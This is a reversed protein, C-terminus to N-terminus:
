SGFKLRKARPFHPAVDTWSRKSRDHLYLCSEGLRCGKPRNFFMCPKQIKNVKVVKMNDDVRGKYNNNENTAPSVVGHERILSKYYDVNKVPEASSVQDDRNTNGNRNQPATETQASEPVRNMDWTSSMNLPQKNQESVLANDVPSPPKLPAAATYSDELRPLPKIGSSLPYSHVVLTPKISLATSIPLTPKPLPPDTACSQVSVPVNHLPPPNSDMAIDTNLTTVHNATDLPKGNLLNHVIIPDSLLKVLLHADVQSGQEKTLSSLAASAALSLQPGLLSVANFDHSSQLPPQPEDEIFALPISPTTSDDYHAEAVAPSVSPRTPIVSRHPYFAELVKSIRLNESLTETSDGGSGVLLADSIIFKPPRKWKIRPINNNRTSPFVTTEFGPPLLNSSSVKAPCDETLFMKVQCLRSQSAWSVRGSTKKKM